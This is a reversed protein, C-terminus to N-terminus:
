TKKRGRFDILVALIIFAGQIAREWYVASDGLKLFLLATRIIGLIVVAVFVGPLKGTGGKISVGGVVVCTVVFLEWQTGIGSEIVSLKPVSILTAIATLIGMTVFALLKLRNANLGRVAAADPNGGVAYVRLGLPTQTAVIWASACVILAVIIPIPIGIWSGIGFERLGAPLDTIWEGKMVVETVGRLGTLMGLTVIISPVKGFVVLVGNMLGICGGIAIMIAISSSVSWGWHTASVATGLVAALLGAMSGISIDIEGLVIVFAAGCAMIAFPSVQILIDRINQTTIFSPNKIQVGVVIAILMILLAWERKM